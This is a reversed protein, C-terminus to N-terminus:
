FALELNSNHTEQYAELKELFCDLHTRIGKKDLEFIDYYRPNRKGVSGRYMVVIMVGDVIIGTQQYLALCYAASQEYYGMSKITSESKSKKSTKWDLLMIRGDKMKALGDITGAYGKTHSVPYEAALPCEIQDLIPKKIHKALSRDVLKDAGDIGLMFSELCAHTYDGVKVPLNYTNDAKKYGVEKALNNKAKDIFTSIDPKGQKLVNTVSPLLRDGVVYHRKGDVQLKACNGTLINHTNLKSTGGKSSHNTARLSSMAFLFYDLWFGAKIAQKLKFKGEFEVPLTDFFQHYQQQPTIHNRYSCTTMVQHLDIMHKLLFSGEM